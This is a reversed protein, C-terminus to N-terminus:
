ANLIAVMTWFPGARPPGFRLFALAAIALLLHVLIGGALVMILKRPAPILEPTWFFTLGQFPQSAGLYFKAGLVRVVWFPRGAGMGFSIPAFGSRRCMLAHGLEHLLTMVYLALVFAGLWALPHLPMLDDPVPM